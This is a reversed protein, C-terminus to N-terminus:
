DVSYARQGADRFRKVNRRSVATECSYVRGHPCHICRPSAGIRIVPTVVRLPTVPSAIGYLVPFFESSGTSVGRGHEYFRAVGDKRKELHVLMLFNLLASNTAASTPITVSGVSCACVGAPPRLGRTAMM